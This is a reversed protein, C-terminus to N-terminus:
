ITVQDATILDSDVTFHTSDVTLPETLGGYLWVLLNGLTTPPLDAFASAAKALDIMQQRTELDLGAFHALLYTQITQLTNLPVCLLCRARALLESRGTGEGVAFALLYTILTNQWGTPICHLNGAEALLEEPDDPLGDIISLLYAQVAAQESVPLCMLCRTRAVLAAPDAAEGHITALLYVQVAAQEHPNLCALCAVEPLAILEVLTSAPLHAM